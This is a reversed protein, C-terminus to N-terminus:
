TPHTELIDRKCQSRDNSEMTANKKIRGNNIIRSFTAFRPALLPTSNKSPTREPSTLMSTMLTLFLIQFQKHEQKPQHNGQQKLNQTECTDEM